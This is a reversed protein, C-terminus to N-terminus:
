PPLLRLKDVRCINVCVNLHLDYFMLIVFVTMRFIHVKKSGYVPWNLDLKDKPGAPMRLCLQSNNVCM